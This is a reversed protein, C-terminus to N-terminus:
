KLCGLCTPDAISLDAPIPHKSPLALSLWHTTPGVGVRRQGGGGGPPKKKGPGQGGPPNTGVGWRPPGGGGGGNKKKVPGMGLGM